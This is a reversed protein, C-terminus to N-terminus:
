AGAFLKLVQVLQPVADVVGGAPCLFVEALFLLPQQVCHAAAKKNAPCVRETVAQAPDSCLPLM